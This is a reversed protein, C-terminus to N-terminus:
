KWSSPMCQSTGWWSFLLCVKTSLLMEAAVCLMMSLLNKPPEPLTVHFYAKNKVMPERLSAQFGSYAGVTQNSPLIHDGISDTRVFAHAFGRQRQETTDASAKIDYNPHAIPNGQKLTKYPQLIMQKEGLDKRQAATALKLPENHDITLALYEPQVFM